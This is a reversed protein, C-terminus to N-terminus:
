HVDIPLTHVWDSLIKGDRSEDEGFLQYLDGRVSTLPTGLKSIRAQISGISFWFLISPLQFCKQIM